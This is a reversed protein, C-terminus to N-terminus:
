GMRRAARALLFTITPSPERKQGFDYAKFAMWASGAKFRAGSPADGIAADVLSRLRADGAVDPFSTLVDLVHLVDYWVFPFKRRRFRKGAQFGCLPAGQRRDYADIHRLLVEAGASTRRPDAQPLRALAWLSDLTAIPCSIPRRRWESELGRWEAHCFWGGDRERRVLMAELAAEARPDAPDGLALAAGLLIPADCPYALRLPEQTEPDLTLSRLQGDAGASALIRGLLRPLGPLSRDVGLDVLLKLRQLPHKADDHRRLAPEPWGALSDTCERVLPHGHLAERAALVAPDDQPADLLDRLVGLKVWPPGTDLLWATPDDGM